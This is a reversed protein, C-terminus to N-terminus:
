IEFLSEELINEEIKKLDGDIYYDIGPGNEGYAIVYYQQRIETIWGVPYKIDNMVHWNMIVKRSLASFERGISKGDLLVKEGIEFKM